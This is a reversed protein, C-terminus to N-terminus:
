MWLKALELSLGPLEAPQWIESEKLIEPAGYKDNQLRYVEFIKKKADILLYLEVEARAYGKM